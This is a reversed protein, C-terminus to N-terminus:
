SCVVLLNRFDILKGKTNGRKVKIKSGRIAAASPQLQSINATHSFKNTEVWLMTEFRKRELDDYRSSGKIKKFPLLTEETIM